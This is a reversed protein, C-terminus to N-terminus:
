HQLMSLKEPVTYFKFYCYKEKQKYLVMGLLSPDALPSRNGHFDPWMHLHKTLFSASVIGKKEAM